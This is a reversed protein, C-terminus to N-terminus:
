AAAPQNRMADAILTRAADIKGQLEAFGDSPQAQLRKPPDAIENLLDRLETTLRDRKAKATEKPAAPGSPGGFVGDGVSSDVDGRMADRQRKPAGVAAAPAPQSMASQMADVDIDPEDQTWNGPAPPPVDVPRAVVDITQEGAPREDQLQVGGYSRFDPAAYGSLNLALQLARKAARDERSFKSEAKAGGFSESAAVIGYAYTEPVPGSRRDVYTELERGSYGFQRGESIIQQRDNYYAARAKSSIIRCRMVVDGAAIRQRMHAVAPFAECMAATILDFSIDLSNGLTLQHSIADAAKIKSSISIGVEPIYYIEGRFPNLGSYKAAIVLARMAENSVGSWKPFAARLIGMEYAIDQESYRTAIATTPAPTLATTSNAM